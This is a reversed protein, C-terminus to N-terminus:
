LIYGPAYGYDVPQPNDYITAPDEAGQGELSEAEVEVEIGNDMEVNGEEPSAANDGLSLPSPADSVIDIPEQSILQTDDPPQSGKGKKKSRKKVAPKRKQVKLPPRISNKYRTDYPHTAGTSSM